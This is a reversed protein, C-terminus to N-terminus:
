EAQIEVSTYSSGLTVSAATGQPILVCDNPIAEEIHIPLSVTADHQKVKATKKNLLGYKEATVRNIALMDHVADQTQQLPQARRVLM